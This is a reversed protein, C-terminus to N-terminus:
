KKYIKEKEKNKSKTQSQTKSKSNKLAKDAGVIKNLPDFSLNRPSPALENMVAIEDIGLADVMKGFLDNNLLGQKVGNMLSTYAQTQSIKGNNLDTGIKAVLPAYGGSTNNSTTENRSAKNSRRYGGSSRRGGGGSSGGGGASVMQAMARNYAKEEEYNAQALADQAKKYDFEQLWRDLDEKDKKEQYAMQKLLNEQALQDQTEGYQNQYYDFQLQQNINDQNVRDRFQGYDMSYENNYRDAYYNRDLQYDGVTDRYRGYDINDQQNFAGLKNYDNALQDQYMGYAMNMLELNRSNLQNMQNDYAQQAVTGAYSNGYGGSLSSANAMTDRMAREANIKYQEAMTDYLMKYNQDQNVDFAARTNITNLINDIQPTYKSVFEDPKNEELDKLQNQYYLVDSSKRYKPNKLVPSKNAWFSSRTNNTNNLTEGLPSYSTVQGQANRVYGANAERLKGSTDGVLMDDRM